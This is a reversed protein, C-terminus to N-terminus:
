RPAKRLYVSLYNHDSISWLGADYEQREAFRVPNVIRVFLRNAGARLRGKVNLEYPIFMHQSEGIKEGNWFYEALTDVGEFLLAEFNDDPAVFEIEYWFDYLEYQQLQLINTGFFLDVNRYAALDLEINGPVACAIPEIKETALAAPNTIHLKATDVPYLLTKKIKLKEKRM